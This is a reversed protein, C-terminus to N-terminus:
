RRARTPVLHPTRHIWPKSPHINEPARQEGRRQQHSHTTVRTLRGRRAAGFLRGKPSFLGVLSALVGADGILRRIGGSVRAGPGTSPLLGRAWVRRTRPRAVGGTLRIAAALLAPRVPTSPLATAAGVSCGDARVPRALGSGARRHTVALLTPVVAAAAVATGARRGRRKALSSLANHRTLRHAVALLTPIVATPSIAARAWSSRGEAFVSFALHETFGGTHDAYHDFKQGIKNLQEHTKESIM